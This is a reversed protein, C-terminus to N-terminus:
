WGLGGLGVCLAGQALDSANMGELDLSLRLLIQAASAETVNVGEM